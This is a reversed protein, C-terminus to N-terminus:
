VHCITMYTMKLKLICIANPHGVALNDDAYLAVFCLGDEDNQCMLCPDVDSGRFVIYLGKPEWLQCLLKM